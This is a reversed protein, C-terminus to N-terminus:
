CACSDSAEAITKSRHERNHGSKSAKHTIQHATTNGAHVSQLSVFPGGFSVPISIPHCIGLTAASGKQPLMNMMHAAHIVVPIYHTGTPHLAFGPVTNPLSGSLDYHSNGNSGSVSESSNGNGNGSSSYDSPPYPTSDSDPSNANQRNVKEDRSCNSSCDSPQTCDFVGSSSKSTTSCDASFRLTIDNKFKYSVAANIKKYDSDAKGDTEGDEMQGNGSSMDENRGCEGRVDLGSTYMFEEGEQEASSEQASTSTSTSISIRPNDPSESHLKDMKLLSSLSQNSAADSCTYPTDSMIGELKSPGM